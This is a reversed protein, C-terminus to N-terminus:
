YTIVLKDKLYKALPFDKLTRIFHDYFVKCHMKYSNFLDRRKKSNEGLFPYTNKKNERLYFYLQNYKYLDGFMKYWVRMNSANLIIIPNLKNDNLINQMHNVNRDFRGLTATDDISLSDVALEPIEDVSNVLAWSFDILANQLNISDINMRINNGSNGIAFIKQTYSVQDNLKLNQEIIESDQKRVLKNLEIIEQNQRKMETLMQSLQSIQSKDNAQEVALKNAAIALLISIIGFIMGLWANLKQTINSPPGAIWKSFAGKWKRIFLKTEIQSDM